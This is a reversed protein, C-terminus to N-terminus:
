VRPCLGAGSPCQTCRGHHSPVACVLLSAWGRRGWPVERVPCPSCIRTDGSCLLGCPGKLQRTCSTKTVTRDKLISNLSGGLFGSRGARDQLPPFHLSAPSQSALLSILNGHSALNGVASTIFYLWTSSLREWCSRPSGSSFARSWGCIM